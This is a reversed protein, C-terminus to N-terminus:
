SLPPFCSKGSPSIKGAGGTCNIISTSITFYSAKTAYVGTATSVSSELLTGTITTDSIGDTRISQPATGSAVVARIYSLSVNRSNSVWVGYTGGTIDLGSVTVADTNRIYITPLTSSSSTLATKVIRYTWTADFEKASNTTLTVEAGSVM